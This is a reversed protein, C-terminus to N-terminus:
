IAIQQKITEFHIVYIVIDNHSHLQYISANPNFGCIDKYAYVCYICVSHLVIFWTLIGSAFGQAPNAFSIAHYQMINRMCVIRRFVTMQFRLM